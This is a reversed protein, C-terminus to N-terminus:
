CSAASCLGVGCASGAVGGLACVRFVGAQFGTRRRGEGGVGLRGLGILGLM